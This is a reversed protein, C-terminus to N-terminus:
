TKSYKDDRYKPNHCIDDITSPDKHPILPHTATKQEQLLAEYREQQATTFGDKCIDCQCYKYEQPVMGQKFEEFVLSNLEIRLKQM